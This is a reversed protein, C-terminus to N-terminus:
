HHCSEFLQKRAQPPDSCPICIVSCLAFHMDVSNKIPFTLGKTIRWVILLM